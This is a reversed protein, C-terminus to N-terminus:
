LRLITYQKANDTMLMSDNYYWGIRQAATPIHRHNILLPQCLCSRVVELPLHRLFRTPLSLLINVTRYLAMHLAYAPVTYSTAVTKM